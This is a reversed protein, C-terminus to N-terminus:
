HTRFFLYKAYALLSAKQEAEVSLGDLSALAQEYYSEMVEEVQRKIDLADFIAKVEAVKQTTKGQDTDAFWEILKNAQMPSALEHAKLYLYTKKNAAIDGGTQKGFKEQEGYLDLLDDKIQFAIGLDIGFDYIKRIDDAKARACIAGIELSAGLLVATKLRIMHIYEPITVLQQTEYNMDLQQGECVEIAAKSFVSLVQPVLEPDTKLAYSYALAFMTDGALIAINDNWKKYVTELGRRLPAKDMIDDHVLTFNHFVEISLAPYIAKDTDGGFLDCALLTLLPRLRKGGQNMTYEIPEYLEAPSRKLDLESIVQNISKQFLHIKDM